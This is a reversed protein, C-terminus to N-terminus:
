GEVQNRFGVTSESISISVGHNVALQAADQAKIGTNNDLLLELFQKVLGNLSFQGAEAKSKANALASLGASDPKLM